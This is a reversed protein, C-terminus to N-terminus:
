ITLNSNKEILSKGKMEKPKPLNMLDLMTPAVDCLAGKHLTYPKDICVVFRVPSTEHKTDIEGTESIMKECNGHDATIIMVGGKEKVKEYVRKVCDDLIEMSEITAELNGTHGLMDGNAFNLIVVDYKDSDLRSLLEETIKRSSMAPTKDYFDVKPSPILVRDCNPLDMETGGDFYYTVHAYKETEAIRLQSLGLSSIYKGFPMDVKPHPYVSEYIVEDSVPMLTLLKINIKKTDFENFTPNTLTKGLERLRDPRFNFFFVRDNDEITISEDLIIPEIFEDTIGKKYSADISKFLDSSKEGVRYILADYAKKIREWRNDRDMGYYRGMVTAITGIENESMFDELERIIEKSSTPSMDRGDTFLHLYVKTLGSDKAMKLIALLHEITSHIKGNSILGILHLNSNLRKTEEYFSLIKKNKYFELSAIERNIFESPQYVVLGAGINMHGVESNGMTNEPLGVHTGSAEILTNPFKELTYDLFPHRSLAVANGYTDERFGVGDLICLVLPKMM